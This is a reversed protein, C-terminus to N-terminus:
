EIVFVGHTVPQDDDVEDDDQIDHFEWMEGNHRHLSVTFFGDADLMRVWRCNPHTRVLGKCVADPYLTWTVMCVWLKANM